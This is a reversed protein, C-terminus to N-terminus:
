SRKGGGTNFLCYIDDPRFYPCVYCLGLLLTYIFPKAPIGVMSLCTFFVWVSPHSVSDEINPLFQLGSCNCASHGAAYGFSYHLMKWNLANTSPSPLCPLLHGSPQKKEKKTKRCHAKSEKFTLKMLKSRLQIM